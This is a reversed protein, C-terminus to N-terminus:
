FKYAIGSVLHLRSGEELIKFRLESTFFLNKNLAFESGIGLSPTVKRESDKYGLIWAAMDVMGLGALPYFAGEGAPILFHMYVSFDMWRTAVFGSTHTGWLIDFEGGMRFRDTFNYLYKAGVGYDFYRSAYGVLANAGVASKRKRSTIVETQEKHTETLPNIVERTGNQYNIAFVESRAVKKTPANKAVIKITGELIELQKYRIESSSIETVKAKIQDGNRLTIVDQAYVSISTLFLAFILLKTRCMLNKENKTKM